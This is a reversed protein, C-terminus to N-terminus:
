HWGFKILLYPFFLFGDVALCLFFFVAGRFLWKHLTEFGEPTEPNSAWNGNRGLHSQDQASM